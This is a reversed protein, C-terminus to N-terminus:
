SGLKVAHEILKVVGAAGGGIGGALAAAKLLLRTHERELRAVRKVLGEVGFRPDGIVARKIESVDKAVGKLEEHVKDADM